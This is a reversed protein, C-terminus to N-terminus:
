RGVLLDLESLHWRPIGLSTFIPWVQFWYLLYIRNHSSNRDISLVSKHLTLLYRCHLKTTGVLTLLSPGLAVKM